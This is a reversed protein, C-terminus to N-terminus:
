APAPPNAVRAAKWRDPPFQDLQSVPTEAIRTLVDRLYTVPDVGHRKCSAVLSAPFAGARGGHDNGLRPRGNLIGAM